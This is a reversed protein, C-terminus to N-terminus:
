FNFSIGLSLRLTNGNGKYRHELELAPGVSLSDSLFFKTGIRGTSLLGNSYHSADLRTSYSFPSVMVFPAIRNSIPLYYTATPGFSVTPGGSWWSTDLGASFHDFFFYQVDLNLPWTRVQDLLGVGSGVTDELLSFSGGLEINGKNINAANAPGSTFILLMAFMFMLRKMEREKQIASPDV